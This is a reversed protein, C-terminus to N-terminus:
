YAVTIRRRLAGAQEAEDVVAVAYDEVSIRSEDNNGVLLRDHGKRYRGTRAGPEVVAAPSIYTWAVDSVSRYHDLASAQGRAEDRYIAPFDPSDLLPHGPQVELSGAGGVVILRPAPELRRLVATLTEAARRYITPDPTTSHPSAGIASVVVDQDRAVEAVSAEGLVDGPVVRAPDDGDPSLNPTRAVVTVHHGRSRAERVIAAGIRGRGGYVAIRM